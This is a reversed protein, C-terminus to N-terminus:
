KSAGKKCVCNEGKDPKAAANGGAIKQWGARREKSIFGEVDIGSTCVKKTIGDIYALMEGALKELEAVRAELKHVRDLLKNKEEGMLQIQSSKMQSEARLAANEAELAALKSEDDRTNESFLEYLAEDADALQSASHSGNDLGAIIAIIKHKINQM